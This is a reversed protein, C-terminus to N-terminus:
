RELGKYRRVLRDIDLAEGTEPHLTPPTFHPVGNRSVRMSPPPYAYVYILSALSILAVLGVYVRMQVVGSM